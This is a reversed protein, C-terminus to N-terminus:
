TRSARAGRGGPTAGPPDDPREQHAVSRLLVLAQEDRSGPEAAYVTLTQQPAGNISFTEYNLTVPGVFPNNFRKRGTTKVSVDHRAWLRRFEPSAVALEGVLEKLGPDDPDHGATGRLVSVAEAAIRDWDEYVDRSMGDLFLYRVLNRKEAFAANLTTALANAAVVELQPGTVLAPHADWQELLQRVGPRLRAERRPRARRRQAPEVLSHVHCRSADDLELARALADLVQPSPNRDTGQELRAYYQTSLGALMALEERRLGPVRRHGLDPVGVMLPDTLERRARLFDGLANAHHVPM